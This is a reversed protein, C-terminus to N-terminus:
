SSEYDLTPVPCFFSRCLFIVSIVFVSNRGGRQSAEVLKLSRSRPPRTTFSKTEVGENSRRTNLSQNVPKASSLM